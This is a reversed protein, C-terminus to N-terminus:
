RTLFQSQDLKLGFDKWASKYKIFTVTETQLHILIIKWSMILNKLVLFTRPEFM